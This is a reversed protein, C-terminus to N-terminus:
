SYGKEDEEWFIYGLSYIRGIFNMQMRELNDIDEIKLKNRSLSCYEVNSIFYSNFMKLIPVTKRTKFTRLLLDKMFANLPLHIMM